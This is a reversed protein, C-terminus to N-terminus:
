TSPRFGCRVVNLEGVSFAVAARGQALRRLLLGTVLWLFNRDRLSSRRGTSGALPALMRHAPEDPLWLATGTGVVLILGALVLYSEFIGLGILVIAGVGLVIGLAQACSAAASAAGRQTPPLQDAIMATFATSAVSVGISVVIWAAGIPVPGTVVGTAILGAAALVSGAIAWPRRRGWRSRTRDSMWGALPAAIVGIVGGVSLVIGAWVVGDIWNEGLDGTDLQLPLLLQIPTYQVMWIALWAVTYLTM